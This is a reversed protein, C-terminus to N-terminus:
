WGSGWMSRAPLVRNVRSSAHVDPTGLRCPLRSGAEAPLGFIGADHSPSLLHGTPEGQRLAPIALHNLRGADAM